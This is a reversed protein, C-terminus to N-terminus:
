RRCRSEHRIQHRDDEMMMRMGSGSWDIDDVHTVVRRPDDKDRSVGQMSSPASWDDDDARREGAEATGEDEGHDDDDTQREGAEAAGEDESHDDDDTQREGAEAAGEDESHDDNDTQREGAEAAGEDESHDDDDTQREGAEAASEDESHDDNDTQREGAEFALNRYLLVSMVGELDASSLVSYNPAAVDKFDGIWSAIINHIFFQQIRNQLLGTLKEDWQSPLTLSITYDEGESQTDFQGSTMQAWKMLESEILVISERWWIDLKKREGESAWMLTFPITGGNHQAITASIGEVVHMVKLREITLTLMM